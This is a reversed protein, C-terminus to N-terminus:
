EALLVRMPLDRETSGDVVISTSYTGPSGVPIMFPGAFSVGAEWGPPHNEGLGLEQIEIRAPMGVPQTMGDRGVFEIVASNGVEGVGYRLQLAIFCGITAPFQPVWFTDLGGGAITFVGDKAEAFRALM